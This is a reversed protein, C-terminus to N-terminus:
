LTGDMYPSSGRVRARLLEAHSNSIAGGVAKTKDIYQTGDESKVYGYRKSFAEAELSGSTSIATVWHGTPVAASLELMRDAVADFDPCLHSASAQEDHVVDDTEWRVEPERGGEKSYDIEVIFTAHIEYKKDGAPIIFYFWLKTLLKDAVGEQIMRDLHTIGFKEAVKQVQFIAMAIVLHITTLLEPM